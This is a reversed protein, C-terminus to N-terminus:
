SSCPISAHTAAMLLPATVIVGILVSLAQRRSLALSGFGFIVYLVSFFYFALQPALAAFVLQIASSVTIQALTLRQETAVDLVGANLARRRLVLFALCDASGALLYGLPISYHLIGAAAFGALLCADTLYSFAAATVAKTGLTSELTNAASGM